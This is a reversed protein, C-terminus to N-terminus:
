NPTAPVTQCGFKIDIQADTSSQIIQCVDPCVIIKTPNAPDDYFWGGNVSACDAYSDVHGLPTPPAGNVAYEVNVQDAAFQEGDPPTPVDWECALTATQVVQTSLQNWVPQFDQNSLEGWVGGTQNVLSWYQAGDDDCVFWIKNACAIAHFVYDDLMPDKARFDADFQAASMSADDDSIVVVHKSAGPRLVQKYDSYRELIRHFADHSDIHQDVHLFTPPNDDDPCGGSALPAPICFGNESGPKGAIVVVRVDIGSAMIQQAFGNLQNKVFNTEQNMSGSQDIALIIDSPQIGNEARQSVASCAGGQGTSGAGGMGLSGNGSGGSGFDVLDEEIASHESGPGGASCAATLPGM